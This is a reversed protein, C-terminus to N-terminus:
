GKLQGDSLSLCQSLHPGAKREEKMWRGVDQCERGM